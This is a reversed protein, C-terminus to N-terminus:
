YGPVAIFSIATSYTGAPQNGPISAKYTVTATESIALDPSTMLVQAPEAASLDAFAKFYTGDVFDPNISDGTMNYGFGPISTNIWPRALLHSCTTDDCTTDAIVDGGPSNELPGLAVALVQYGGGGRTNITMTHSDTNHSGSTLEGLDITNKSLSFTFEKIQYIYQFGSGIFYNTTGYTGFPGAATQGVTETLNYNTSGRKGAGTNLNGFQIIYSNSELREALVTAPLGIVLMVTSAIILAATRQARKM